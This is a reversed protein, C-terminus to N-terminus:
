ELTEKVIGEWTMNHLAALRDYQEYLIRLEAELAETKHKPVLAPRYATMQDAQQQLTGLDNEPSFSSSLSVQMSGLPSTVVGPLSPMLLKTSVTYGHLDAVSPSVVADYRPKSINTQQHKQESIESHVPM